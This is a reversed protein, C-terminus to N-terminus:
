AARVGEAAAPLAVAPLAEFAPRAFLYGQQLDVGLDRLAASEDATEIGEALVILGLEKGANAVSRVLARRVRDRDIGRVLEMDIKVIDPQFKALRTLGSFGAGFDDIATKFGMAKYSQIIRMLHADDIQEGETFEFVIRTPPFGTAATAALTARICAKPEYVANPLFNISLLAGREAVGLRAALSIAQVRCAQDFAYRNTDNVAGLVHGAGQGARGRVLAEYAFVSGTALDVIPQFAMSFPIPFAADDRCGQCATTSM